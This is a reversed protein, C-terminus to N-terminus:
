CCMYLDKIHEWEMAVIKEALCHCKRACASVYLTCYSSFLLIYMLVGRGGWEEWSRWGSQKVQTLVKEEWTIILMLNLHKRTAFKVIGVNSIHDPLLPQDATYFKKMVVYFTYCCRSVQDCNDEFKMECRRWYGM